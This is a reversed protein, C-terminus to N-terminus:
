SREGALRAENERFPLTGLFRAGSSRVIHPGHLRLWPAHASAPPADDPRCLSSQCLPYHQRQWAELGTAAPLPIDAIDRFPVRVAVPSRFIVVAIEGCLLITPQGVNRPDAPVCAVVSSSFSSKVRLTRCRNPFRFGSTGVTASTSIWQPCPTPIQQSQPHLNSRVPTRCLRQVSHLTSSCRFRLARFLARCLACRSDIPWPRVPLCM